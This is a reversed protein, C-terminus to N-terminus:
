GEVVQLSSKQPPTAMAPQAHNEPSLQPTDRPWPRNEAVVSRRIEWALPSRSRTVASSIAPRNIWASAWLREQDM